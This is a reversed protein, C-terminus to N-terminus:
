ETRPYDAIDIGLREMTEDFTLIDDTGRKLLYEMFARSMKERTNNKKRYADYMMEIVTESNGYADKFEQSEERGLFKLFNRAQQISIDEPFIGKEIFTKIREMEQVKMYSADSSKEHLFKIGIQNQIYMDDINNSLKKATKFRNGGYEVATFHEVIGYAGYDYGAKELERMRKNVNGAIANTVSILAERSARDGTKAKRQLRRLEAMTMM